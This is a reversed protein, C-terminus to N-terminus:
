LLPSLAKFLTVVIGYWKFHHMFMREMLEAPLGFLDFTYLSPDISSLDSFGDDFSGPESIQSSWDFMPPSNVRVLSPPGFLDM